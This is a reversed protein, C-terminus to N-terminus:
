NPLSYITDFHIFTFVLYCLGVIAGFPYILFWSITMVPKEFKLSTATTMVNAWLWWFGVLALLYFGWRPQYFLLTIGAFNAPCAILVDAFAIGYMIKQQRWSDLSGDVNTMARGQLVKIQWIFILLSYIGMITILSYVFVKVPLSFESM